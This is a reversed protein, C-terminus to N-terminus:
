VWFFKQMMMVYHGIFFLIKIKQFFQECFTLVSFHFNM